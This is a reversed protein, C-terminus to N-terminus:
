EYKKILAINSKEIESLINEPFESAEITGSYWSKSEFYTKLEVDNFKRGHRAFIENRALMLQNNSLSKVEDDTLLRKASDILIYDSNNISADTNETSASKAHIDDTGSSNATSAANQSEITSVKVDNSSTLNYEEQNETIFVSKLNGAKSEEAMTDVLDDWHLIGGEDTYLNNAILVVDVKVAEKRERSTDPEVMVGVDCQIHLVYSNYIKDSEFEDKDRLVVFADGLEKQSKIGDYRDNVSSQVLFVGLFKTDAAGAELHLQSYMAQHLQTLDVGNVSDLYAEKGEAAYEKVDYLVRIKEKGCDLKDYSAQVKVTEGDAYYQKETTFNVYSKTFDPCDGTIFTGTIFPSRGSFELRLGEFVDIEKREVLGEVAITQKINTAKLKIAQFLDETFAIEFVVKDGNALNENPTLTYPITQLLMLANTETSDGNKTVKESIRALEQENLTVVGLGEHNLGNFTVEYLKSMDVTTYSISNVLTFVGIVAVSVAAIVGVIILIWSKKLTKNSQEGLVPEGCNTCITVAEDLKTGCKKCFM